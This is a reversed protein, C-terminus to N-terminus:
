GLSGAGEVREGPQLQAGYGAQEDVTFQNRVMQLRSLGHDLHRHGTLNTSFETGLPNQRCSVNPLMQPGRHNDGQDPSRARCPHPWVGNRGGAAQHAGWLPIRGTDAASSHPGQPELSLWIAVSRLPGHPPAPRPPAPPAEKWSLKHCHFQGQSHAPPQHPTSGGFHLAHPDRLRCTITQFLHSTGLGLPLLFAQLPTPLPGSLPPSPTSLLPPSLGSLLKSVANRQLSSPLWPLNEPTLLAVRDRQSEFGGEPQKWSLLVCPAPGDPSGRTGAGVYYMLSPTEHCCGFICPLLGPRIHSSLSVIVTKM